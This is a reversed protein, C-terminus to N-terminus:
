IASLRSVVMQITSTSPRSENEATTCNRKAMTIAGQALAQPITSHLSHDSRRPSAMKATANKIKPPSGTELNLFLDM